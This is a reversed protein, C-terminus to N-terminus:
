IGIKCKVISIYLMVNNYMACRLNACNKVDFMEVYVQSFLEMEAMQTQHVTEQRQSRHGRIITRKHPFTNWYIGKHGKRKDDQSCMAELLFM